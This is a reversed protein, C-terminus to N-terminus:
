LSGLLSTIVLATHYGLMLGGAIKWWRSDRENKARELYAQSNFKTEDFVRWPFFAFVFADTVRILTFVLLGAISYKLIIDGYDSEHFFALFVGTLVGILVYAVSTGWHYYELPVRTFCNCQFCLATDDKRYYLKNKCFVFHFFRMIPNKYRSPNHFGNECIQRNAM